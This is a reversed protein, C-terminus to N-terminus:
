EPIKGKTDFGGPHPFKKRRRKRRELEEITERIDRELVRRHALSLIEAFTSAWAERERAMEEREREIRDAQRDAREYVAFILRFLAQMKPAQQELDAAHEALPDALRAGEAETPM